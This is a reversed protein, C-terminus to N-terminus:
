SSIRDNVKALDQPSLSNVQKAQERIERMQLM